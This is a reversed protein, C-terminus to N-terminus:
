TKGVRRRTGRRLRRSGESRNGITSDKARTRIKGFHDIEDGGGRARRRKKLTMEITRNQAARRRRNTTTKKMMKRHERKRRTRSTAKYMRYTLATIKRLPRKKPTHKRELEKKEPTQKDREPTKVM